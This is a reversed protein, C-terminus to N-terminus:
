PNDALSPPPDNTVAWFIGLTQIAKMFQDFDVPKVVYANTGLEYSRIIDAEESSSTLIVVPIQALQQNGRIAQLVQLGDMRPMKLDLLVLIPLGPPRNGHRERRLLYDMVEVGDRVVEVQNALNQAALANLTLEMDYPNDDAFLIRKLEM